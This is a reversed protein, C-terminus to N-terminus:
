KFSVSIRSDQDMPNSKEAIYAFGDNLAFEMITMDLIQESKRTVCAEIEALRNYIFELNVELEFDNSIQDVNRTYEYSATILAYGSGSVEISVDSTKMEIFQAELVNSDNVTLKRIVEPNKGNVFKVEMNTTSIENATATFAGIAVATSHSVLFSGDFEGQEMLWKIIPRARLKFNVYHRTKALEILALAAYSAILKQTDKSTTEGKKIDWFRTEGDSKSAHNLRNLYVESSHHHGALVLAYACMSMELNNFEIQKEVFNLAKETENTYPKEIFDRNQLIAVLVFCTLSLNDADNPNTSTATEIFSGNVNQNSVSFDLAKTLLEKNIPEIGEQMAQGFIQSVFASMWTSGKETAKLFYYNLEFISPNGVNQILPRYVLKHIKSTLNMYKLTLTGGGTIFNSSFFSVNESIFSGDDRKFQMMHQYGSRLTNEGAVKATSTLKGANKM